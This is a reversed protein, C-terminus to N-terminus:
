IVLDIGRNMRRWALKKPGPWTSYSCMKRACSHRAKECARGIKEGVALCKSKVTIYGRPLLWAGPVAGFRCALQPGLINIMRAPLLNNAELPPLTVTFWTPSLVLFVLWLVHYAVISMGWAVHKLKDYPVVAGHRVTAKMPATYVEYMHQSLERRKTMARYAKEQRVKCLVHELCVSEVTWGLGNKKPFQKIIEDRLSARRAKDTLRYGLKWTLLPRSFDHGSLADLVVEDPVSDLQHLSAHSARKAHTWKGKWTPTRPM